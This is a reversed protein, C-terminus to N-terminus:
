NDSETVSDDDVLGFIHKDACSKARKLATIHGIHVLDLAGFSYAIKM